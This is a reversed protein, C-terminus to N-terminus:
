LIFASFGRKGLEVIMLTPRASATTASTAIADIKIRPMVATAIFKQCIMKRRITYRDRASIHADALPMSPLPETVVAFHCSASRPWSLGIHCKEVNTPIQPHPLKPPPSAMCPPMMDLFWFILLPSLFYFAAYIANITHGDTFDAVAARYTPAGHGIRRARSRHRYEFFKSLLRFSLMSPRSITCRLLPLSFRLPAQFRLVTFSICIVARVRSHSIPM